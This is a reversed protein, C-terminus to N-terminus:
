DGYMYIEKESTNTMTEIAPIIKNILQAMFDFDIQETEDDVHHYYKYNTFDFTSITQCAVSFATHFPYNDSRKFLNLAKSKPLLGLLNSKTYENIKEGMNSLGYGTLYAEYDKSKMPVGIMEMNVMTYLDFEEKKLKKALHKSGELGKEEASFLVFMLSRKNNRKASFYNAMALVASTGAANDNAGNAINDGDVPVSSVGIHDFHAGLLVVQNKLVPDNGELFGVINYAKIDKDIESVDVKKNTFQFHDRYLEFYPDINYKKFQTEIYSAAKDIGESGTNRGKLEDSALFTLSNAIEENTITITKSVFPSKENEGSKVKLNSCSFVLICVITFAMIKKMM